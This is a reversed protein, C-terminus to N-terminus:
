FVLLHVTSGEAAETGADPNQSRVRGSGDSFLDGLITTEEVEFGAEELLQRAQEVELDMLDPVELMRPGLSETVEVTEGPVLEGEAPQQASVMGTQVSTSHASDVVEMLLGLEELEARAQSVTM